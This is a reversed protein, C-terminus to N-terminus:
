LIKFLGYAFVAEKEIQVIAKLSIETNETHDTSLFNRHSM